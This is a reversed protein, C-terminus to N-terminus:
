SGWDDEVASVEVVGFFHEFLAECVVGDAFVNTLFTADVKEVNKFYDPSSTHTCKRWGILTLVRIMDEM